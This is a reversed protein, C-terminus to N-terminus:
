FHLTATSKKFSQNICATYGGQMLLGVASVNSMCTAVRFVAVVCCSLAVFMLGISSCSVRVVGSVYGM